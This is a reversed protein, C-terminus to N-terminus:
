MLWGGLRGMWVGMRVSGVKNGRIRWFFSGLGPCRM